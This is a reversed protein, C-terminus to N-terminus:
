KSFYGVLNFTKKIVFFSLIRNETKIYHDIHDNVLSLNSKDLPLLSEFGNLLPKLGCIRYDKKKFQTNNRYQRALLLLLYTIDFRQM